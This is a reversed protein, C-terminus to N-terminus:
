GSRYCGVAGISCIIWLTMRFASLCDCLPWNDFMMLLFSPKTVLGILLVYNMKFSRSLWKKPFLGRSAEYNLWSGIGITPHHM